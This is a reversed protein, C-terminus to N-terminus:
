GRKPFDGIMRNLRLSWQEAEERPLRYLLFSDGEVQVEAPGGTKADIVHWTGDEHQSLHFRSLSEM